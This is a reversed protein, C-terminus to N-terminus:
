SRRRARVFPHETVGFISPVGSSRKASSHVGQTMVAVVIEFSYTLIIRCFVYLKEGM